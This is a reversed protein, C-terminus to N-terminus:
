QPLEARHGDEIPVDVLDHLLDLPINRKVSRHGGREHLWRRASRGRWTWQFNRVLLQARQEPNSVDVKNTPVLAKGDDVLGQLGLANLPHDFSVVVGCVANAGMGRKRAQRRM